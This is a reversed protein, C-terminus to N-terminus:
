VNLDPKSKSPSLIDEIDVVPSEECCGENITPLSGCNQIRNPKNNEAITYSSSTEAEDDLNSTQNFTSSVDQALHM